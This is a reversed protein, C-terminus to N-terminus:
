RGGSEEYEAEVRHIFDWGEPTIKYTVIAPRHTPINKSVDSQRFKSPRLYELKLAKKLASEDLNDIDFVNTENDLTALINYIRHASIVTKSM